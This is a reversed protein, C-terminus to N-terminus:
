VVRIQQKTPPKDLTAQTIKEEEEKMKVVVRLEAVGQKIGRALNKRGREFMDLHRSPIAICKISIPIKVGKKKLRDLDPQAEHLKRISENRDHLTAFAEPVTNLSNPRYSRHVGCFSSSPKAIHECQKAHPTGNCIIAKCRDPQKLIEDGSAIAANKHRGCFPTGDKAKNSCRSGKRAGTVLTAECKSDSVTTQPIAVKRSDRENSNFHEVLEDFIQQKLIALIGILSEQIEDVVVEKITSLSHMIKVTNM